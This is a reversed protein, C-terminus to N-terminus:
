SEYHTYLCQRVVADTLLKIYVVSVNHLSHDNIKHLKKTTVKQIGMWTSNVNLKVKFDYHVKFGCIDYVMM